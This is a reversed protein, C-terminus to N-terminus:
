FPEVYDGQSLFVCSHPFQSFLFSKPTQCLLTTEWQFGTSHLQWPMNKCLNYWHGLTIQLCRVDARALQLNSQLHVRSPHRAASTSSPAHALATPCACLPRLDRIWSSRPCCVPAAQLQGAARILHHAESFINIFGWTSSLIRCRQPHRLSGFEM